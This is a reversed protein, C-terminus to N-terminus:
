HVDEFVPRTWQLLNPSLALQSHWTTVSANFTCLGKGHKKFHNLKHM